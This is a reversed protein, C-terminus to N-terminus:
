YYILLESLYANKNLRIFHMKKYFYLKYFQFLSMYM